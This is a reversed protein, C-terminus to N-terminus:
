THEDLTTGGPHGGIEGVLCALPDEDLLGVDVVQRRQQLQAGAVLDGADDM